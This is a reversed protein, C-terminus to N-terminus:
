DKRKKGAERVSPRKGSRSFSAKRRERERERERDRDRQRERLNSSLAECKSSLHFIVRDMGRARKKGDNNKLNPLM